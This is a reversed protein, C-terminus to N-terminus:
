LESLAIVVLDAAHRSRGVFHASSLLSFQSGCKFDKGGIIGPIAIVSRIEPQNLGVLCGHFAYEFVVRHLTGGASPKHLTTIDGSSQHASAGVPNLWIHPRWM